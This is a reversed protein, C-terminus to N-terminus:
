PPLLTPIRQRGNRRYVGFDADLTWITADHYIESMRVLCADAFAMPVNAYRTMLAHVRATEDRYRFEATVIGREVLALLARGGSSGHGLLYSAESIVAECTVLPPVLRAFCDVAWAHHKEGRNVVAVLPGTDVVVKV